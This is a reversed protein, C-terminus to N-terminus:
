MYIILSYGCDHIETKPNPVAVFENVNVYHGQKLIVFIHSNASKPNINRVTDTLKKINSIKFAPMLDRNLLMDKFSNANWAINCSITKCVFKECTNQSFLLSTM